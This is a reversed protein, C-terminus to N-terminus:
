EEDGVTVIPVRPGRIVELRRQAESKSLRQYGADATFVHVGWRHIPERTQGYDPAVLSLYSPIKIGYERDTYSLDLRYGPGHTHIQGILRVNEVIAIDAVDNFLSPHINIFEPRKEVLPGRLRILHTLEAVDSRDRGLWLVIGENGHIGDRSMERLCDDIATEPIRWIATDKCSKTM